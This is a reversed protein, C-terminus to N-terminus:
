RPASAAPRCTVAPQHPQPCPHLSAAAGATLAEATIAGATIAEATTVMDLPAERASDVNASVFDASGVYAFTGAFDVSGGWHSNDM